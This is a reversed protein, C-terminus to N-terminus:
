LLADLEEDGLPHLFECGIVWDAQTQRTAHMVHANLEVVGQAGRIQIALYAGVPLPRSLMLGLGTKSINIVWARQYEQDENVYLKGTTAPACCYRVSARQNGRALRQAVEMPLRSM